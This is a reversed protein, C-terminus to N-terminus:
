YVLLCGSDNLLSRTLLANSNESAIVRSYPTTFPLTFCPAVHSVSGRSVKLSERVLLFRRALLPSFPQRLLPVLVVNVSRRWENRTRHFSLADWVHQILCSSPLASEFLGGMRGGGDIKKRTSSALPSSVHSVQHLVIKFWPSIIQPPSSIRHKPKSLFM